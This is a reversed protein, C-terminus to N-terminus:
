RAEEPFVPLTRTREPLPPRETEGPIKADRCAIKVAYESEIGLEAEFGPPFVDDSGTAAGGAVDFTRFADDDIQFSLKFKDTLFVGGIVLM